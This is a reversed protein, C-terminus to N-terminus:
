AGIKFLKAFINERFYPIQTIMKDLCIFCQTLILPNQKRGKNVWTSSLHVSRDTLSTMSPIVWSVGM